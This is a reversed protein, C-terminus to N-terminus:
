DKYRNLNEEDDTHTTTRIELRNFSEQTLTSLLAWDSLRFDLSESTLQSQTLNDADPQIQEWEWKMFAYIEKPLTDLM